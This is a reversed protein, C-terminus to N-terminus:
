DLVNELHAFICLMRRVLRVYGASHVLAVADLASRRVRSIDHLDQAAEGSSNCRLSSQDNQLVRNDAPSVRRDRDTSQHGLLAYGLCLRLYPVLSELGDTYDVLRVPDVTWGQRRHLLLM